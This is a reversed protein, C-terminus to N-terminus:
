PTFIQAREIWFIECAGNGEDDRVLSSRWPPRGPHRVEVLYGELDVFSNRRLNKLDTLVDESAPLCHMNASQTAIEGAPLPCQADYIYEYWRSHQSIHFHELVGSDSMGQWGLALDIPSLGAVDDFRYRKRSLVRAKIRFHALPQIEYDKVKWSPADTTSQGPAENIRVGPSPAPADRFFIWWAALLLIIVVLAKKM